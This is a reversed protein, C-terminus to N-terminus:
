RYCYSFAETEDKLLRFVRMKRQNGSPRCFKGKRARAYTDRPMLTTMIITPTTM